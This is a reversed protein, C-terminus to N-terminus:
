LASAHIELNTAARQIRRIPFPANGTVGCQLGAHATAFRAARELPWGHLFGYIVGASFAAGAGYGDIVQVKPPRISFAQGSQAVACGEAGMTVLVTGVGQEILSRAIDTAEGTAGPEDLSVQCVNAHHLLDPLHPNDYYRSELNLFVPVEQSRAREMAGLIGPGDYWDVYLMRAGSLQAVSPIALSSMVQPERRQFYTRSGSADVIGVELPTRLGPHVQPGAALGSARLHEIVREGYYDIGVSSSILTAPMKWRSLTCAVIAADDGLSDVAEM